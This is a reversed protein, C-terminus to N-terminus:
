TSQCQLPRRSDVVIYPIGGFAPSEGFVPHLKYGGAAAWVATLAANNPDLPANAVNTNWLNTSPFPVFGNLDGGNPGFTPTGVQMDHCARMSGYQPDQQASAYSAFLLLSFCTVSPAGEAPFPRWLQM